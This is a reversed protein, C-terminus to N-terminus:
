FEGWFVPYRHKFEIIGNSKVGYVFVEEDNMRFSLLYLADPKGDLRDHPNWAVRTFPITQICTLHLATIAKKETLLDNMALAIAGSEDVRVLWRKDKLWKMLKVARQAVAVWADLNKQVKEGLLFIGGLTALLVTVDAGHGINRESIEVETDFRALGTQIEHCAIPDLSDGDTSLPASILLDM